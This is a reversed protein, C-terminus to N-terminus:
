GARRRPGRRGRGDRALGVLALVDLDVLPRGLAVQEDVDVDVEHGHVAAVLADGGAQGAVPAEAVVVVDAVMCCLRDNM